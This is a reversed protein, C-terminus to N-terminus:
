RTRVVVTGAIYDHVSRRKNNTLTTLTDVLGWGLTVWNLWDADGILYCVTTLLLYPADRLLAHTPELRGESDYRVVKIGMLMKGITQGYKWHFWISYGFSLLTGMLSLILPYGGFIMRLIALILYYVLLLVFYDIFSAWFRPWFTNYRRDDFTKWTDTM